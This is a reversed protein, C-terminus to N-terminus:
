PLAPRTASPASEAEVTHLRADSAAPEDYIGLSDDTADAGILVV